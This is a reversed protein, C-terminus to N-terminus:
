CSLDEAYSALGDRLAIVHVGLHWGDEKGNVLCDILCLVM